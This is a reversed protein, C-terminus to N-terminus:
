SWKYIYSQKTKLVPKWFHKIETSNRSIELFTKRAKTYGLITLNGANLVKVPGPNTPFGFISFTEGGDLDRSCGDPPWCKTFSDGHWSIAHIRDPILELGPFPWIFQYQIGVLFIICNYVPFMILQIEGFSYNISHSNQSERSTFWTWVSLIKSVNILCARNPVWFQFNLTVPTINM